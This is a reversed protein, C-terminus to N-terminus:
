VTERIPFIPRNRKAFPRQTKCHRCARPFPNRGADYLELLFPLDPPDARFYNVADSSGKVHPARLAGPASPVQKETKRGAPIAM